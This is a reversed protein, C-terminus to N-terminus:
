NGDSPAEPVPVSATAPSKGFAQCLIDMERDRRAEITHALSAFNVSASSRQLTWGHAAMFKLFGDIVYCQGDRWNPRADGVREAQPDMPRLWEHLSKFVDKQDHFDRLPAPLYREPDRLFEAQDIPESAM